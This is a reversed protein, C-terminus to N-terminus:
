NMDWMAINGREGTIAFTLGDPAFAIAYIQGVPSEFRGLEEGTVTDWIRLTKDWSGSFVKLSDPSFALCTVRGQHGKLTRYERLPNVMYLVIAWDQAVALTSGDPAFALAAAIYATSSRAITSQHLTRLVVLRSGESWAFAKTAQNVAVARVGAPATHRPELHKPKPGSIDWVETSGPINRAREGFAIVIRSEDIFEIANAAPSTAPGFITYGDPTPSAGLWGHAGAWVLQQGKPNMRICHIAHNDSRRQLGAHFITQPPAGGLSVEVIEGSKTGLFIRDSEPGYALTYAVSATGEVIWM